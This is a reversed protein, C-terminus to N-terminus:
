DEGYYYIKGIFYLPLILGSLLVRLGEGTYYGIIAPLFLIMPLWKKYKSLKWQVVAFAIDVVGLSLLYLNQDSLSNAITWIGIMAICWLLGDSAIQKEM